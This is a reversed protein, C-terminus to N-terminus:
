YPTNLQGVQAALQLPTTDNNGLLDLSNSYRVTNESRM